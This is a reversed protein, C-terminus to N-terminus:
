WMCWTSVYIRFFLSTNEILHSIRVQIVTNMEGEQIRRFRVPELYDPDFEPVSAAVKKKGNGSFVYSNVM